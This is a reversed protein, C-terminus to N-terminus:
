FLRSIFFVEHFLVYLTKLKDLVDRSWMFFPDIKKIPLLGNGKSM